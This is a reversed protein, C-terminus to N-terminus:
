LFDWTYIKLHFMVQTPAHRDIKKNKIKKEYPKWYNMM